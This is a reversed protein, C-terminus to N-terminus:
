TPLRLATKRRQTRRCSAATSTISARGTATGSGIIGRKPHTGLMSGSNRQIGLEGLVGHSRVGNVEM